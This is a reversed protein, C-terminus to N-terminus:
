SIMVLIEFNKASFILSLYIDIFLNLLKFKYHGMSYKNSVMAFNMKIILYYYFYNMRSLNLAIASIKGSFLYIKELKKAMIWFCWLIKIWHTYKLFLVLLHLKIIIFIALRSKMSIISSNTNYSTWVCNICLM